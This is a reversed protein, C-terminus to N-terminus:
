EEGIEIAHSYRDRIVFGTHFGLQQNQNAVVGSSVFNAKAGSLGRAARDANGTLLVTQRHVVDNAHEDAPLSHAPLREHTELNNPTYTM